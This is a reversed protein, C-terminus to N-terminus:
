LQIEKRSPLEIVHKSSIILQLRRVNARNKEPNRANRKKSDSNKCKKCQRYLGDRKNNKDKPFDIPEKAIKCDCCVKRM